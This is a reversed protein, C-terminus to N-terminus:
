AAPPRVFDVGVADGREFVPRPRLTGRLVQRPPGPPAVQEAGERSHRQNARLSVSLRTLWAPPRCILLGRAGSQVMSSNSLSTFALPQVVASSAERRGPRVMPPM